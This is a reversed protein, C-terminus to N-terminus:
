FVFPSFLVFRFVHHEQYCLFFLKQLIVESGGRGADGRRSGRKVSRIWSNLIETERSCPPSFFHIIVIFLEAPTSECTVPIRLTRCSDRVTCAVSEEYVVPQEHWAYNLAYCCASM